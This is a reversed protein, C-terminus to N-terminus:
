GHRPDRSLPRQTDNLVFVPYPIERYNLISLSIFMNPVVNIQRMKFFHAEVLDAKMSDCIGVNQNM